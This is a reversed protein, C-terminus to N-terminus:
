LRAFPFLADSRAWQGGFKDKGRWANSVIVFPVHQEDDARLYFGEYGRDLRSLIAPIAHAFEVYHNTEVVLKPALQRPRRLELSMVKFEYKRAAVAIRNILAAPSPNTFRRRPNQRAGTALEREWAALTGRGARLAEARGIHHVHNSIGFHVGEDLVSRHHGCAAGLLM